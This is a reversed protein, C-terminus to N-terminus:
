QGERQLSPNFPEGRAVLLMTTITLFLSGVFGMLLAWPNVLTKSVLVAMVMATLAFRLFYRTAVFTNVKEPAMSIGTRAIRLCLYQNLVGILLGLSFGTAVGNSIITCAVFAGIGILLNLLGVRLVKTLIAPEAQGIRFAM